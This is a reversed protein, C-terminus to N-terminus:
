RSTEDAKGPTEDAAWNLAERVSRFAMVRDSLLSAMRGMGYQVERTVVIAVRDWRKFHTVMERVESADPYGERRRADWVLAKWPHDQVVFDLAALMDVARDLEFPGSLRVLVVPRGASLIRYPYLM